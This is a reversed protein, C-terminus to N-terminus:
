SWPDYLAVGNDPTWEGERLIRACRAMALCYEEDHGARDYAAVCVHNWDRPHQALLLKEAKKPGMGYIGAYNDTKDGMLWQKHFELDAEWPTVFRLVPEHTVRSSKGNEDRKGPHSYEPRYHWGPTSVLDKDLTVAIAKGSSAAIGMLDDAELTPVFKTHFMDSNVLEAAYALRAELVEDKEKNDRHGKYEPWCTRRYNDARDASVAMFVHTVGPPTWARIRQRLLMPMEDTDDCIYSTLHMIMDADLIALKPPEHMKM